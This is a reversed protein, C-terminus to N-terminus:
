ENGHGQCVVTLRECEPWHYSTAAVAMDTIYWGRDTWLCDISWEGEVKASAHSALWRVDDESDGLENMSQFEPMAIVTEDLAEPPWYPHICKVIGNEAFARFERRLPMGSFPEYETVSPGPLWERIAWVHYPLGFLDVIQSFEFLSLVHSSLRTLDTVACTNRWNHKGSFVGTRLFWPGDSSIRLAAKRLEDIWGDLWSPPPGGDLVAWLECDQERTLDLRVIETRPTPVHEPIKPYWFTICNLDARHREQRKKWMEAREEESPMPPFIKKIADM